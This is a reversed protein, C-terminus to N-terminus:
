GTIGEPLPGTLYRQVTPGILATLTDAPMSAIPEIRVIYRVM